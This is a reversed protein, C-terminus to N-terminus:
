EVRPLTVTLNLTNTGRLVTATVKDGPMKKQMVYALLESETMRDTLGDFTLIIDGKRFGAQKALAHEGYEGVHALLLAMQTNNLKAAHREDDTMDVPKMGGFGLRRLQWSSVRWSIDSSRRWGDALHITLTTMTKATDGGRQVAATITGGRPSTHHLVYQVDAISLIPQGNLVAIDDGVKIGARAAPSGAAVATVRAKEKPSLKMGVVDPMPWQFLLEDPMPQRTKRAELRMADGIQHCHLCSQVVQGEYDLTPKYHKLAAFQEPRTIKPPPGKKPELSARNAPYGKHLDLAGLMAKAFSDMSLDRETEKVDSRTGYRGYITGDANMFFAAFSLDYDFQFQALDMANAQVIRVCVFKEMISKMRDAAQKLLEADFGACAHCPICRFVVLMPKGTKKAEEMGKALDNYVWTEDAGVIKRDDLVQTKRDKPPAAIVLTAATAALILPLLHRRRM